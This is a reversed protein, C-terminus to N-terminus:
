KLEPLDVSKDNAVKTLVRSLHKTVCAASRTDEAADRLALNCEDWVGPQEPLDPVQAM